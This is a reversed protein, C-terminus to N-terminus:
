DNIWGRAVLESLPLDKGEEESIRKIRTPRNSQRELWVGVDSALYNILEPHHSIIIAQAKGEGCLDFLSTLWPQIESLAVYNDPEDLCLTFFGDKLIGLLAYLIILVRQGDSLEDFRYGITRNGDEESSFHVRLAKISEGFQVFQFHSFGNFVDRLQQTIEFARGQNESLFSYWSVFNEANAKLKAEGRESEGTMNIPNIKIIILNDSLHEKFWTLLKNDNRSPLAAIASQSWDFPYVPGVSQDDRYLHAEGKEFNLLPKSNFWLREHDVRKKRGEPEYGISLEYKYLGNNGSIELEITLFLSNQWRTLDSFLFIEQVKKGELLSQVKLLIEFINSKGAGNAGMLLQIPKDIVLEFNVLSKFNDIYIRNLM